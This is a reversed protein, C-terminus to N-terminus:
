QLRRLGLGVPTRCWDLHTPAIPTVVTDTAVLLLRTPSAPVPPELLAGSVARAPSPPDPAPADDELVPAPALPSAPSPPAAEGPPDAPPSGFPPPVSTPSATLLPSPVAPSSPPPIATSFSCPSRSSSPPIVLLSVSSIDSLEASSSPSSVPLAAPAVEAFSALGRSRGAGTGGRGPPPDAPDRSPSRSRGSREDDDEPDALPTSAWTLADPFVVTFSSDSTPTVQWDWVRRCLHNLEVEIMEPSAVGAGVITVVALLSSSPPPIDEVEIHFFGFGEIGHSYMMLEETVPSDSCLAAPHGSEKYLYCMPPNPCEVQYHGVLGCNFCPPPDRPAGSNPATSSVPTQAAASLPRAPGRKKKKKAGHRGRAGSGGNGSPLSPQNKPPQYRRTTATDNPLPQSPSPSRGRRHAPSPSRSRDRRSERAPSRRGDAQVPSLRGDARAPSRRSDRPPSRRSDRSPSHRAARAPSRRADRSALQRRLDAERRQGEPSARGAQRPEDLPRKPRGAGNGWDRAMPLPPPTAPPSPPAPPSPTLLLSALSRAVPVPAPTSQPQLPFGQPLWIRGQAPPAPGLGLRRPWPAPAAWVGCAAWIPRGGPPPHSTPGFTAGPGIRAPGTWFRFGRARSPNRRGGGALLARRVVPESPMARRSPPSLTHLLTPVFRFICHLPPFPLATLAVPRRRGEVAASCGLRPSGVPPGGPRKPLASSRGAPWVGVTPAGDAVALGRALPTAKRRPWRLPVCCGASPGLGCGPLRVGVGPLLAALPAPCRRALRPPRPSATAASWRGARPATM